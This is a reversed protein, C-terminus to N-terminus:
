FGINIGNAFVKIRESVLLENESSLKLDVHYSLIREAQAISVHTHFMAWLFITVGIFIRQPISLIMEPKLQM